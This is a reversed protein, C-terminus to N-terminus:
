PGGQSPSRLQQLSPTHRELWTVVTSLEDPIGERHTSANFLFSYLAARLAPEPPRSENNPLIAATVDTLAEAISRRHRPSAAPWKIRTYDVAHELWTRKARCPRLTASPGSSVNFPVGRRSATILEARFAEALKNTAFTRRHRRGEVSWRLTYTTKRTGTYKELTWIRVEYSSTSGPREGTRKM